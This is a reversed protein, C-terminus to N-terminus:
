RLEIFVGPASSPPSLNHGVPCTSISLLSIRRGTAPVKLLSLAREVRELFLCCLSGWFVFRPDSFVYPMEMHLLHLQFRTNVPRPLSTDLHSSTMFRAETTGYFVEFAGREQPIELTLPNGISQMNNHAPTRRPLPHQAEGRQKV